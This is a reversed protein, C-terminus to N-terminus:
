KSPARTRTQVRTHRASSESATINHMDADDTIWATIGQPLAGVLMAVEKRMRALHMPSYVRPMAHTHTSKAPESQMGQTRARPTPHSERDRARATQPSGISLAGFPRVLLPRFAM